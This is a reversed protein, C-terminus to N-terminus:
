GPGEGDPRTTIDLIRSWQARERWEGSEVRGDRHAAVVRYRYPAELEVAVPFRLTRAYLDPESGLFKVEARVLRGDVARAEVEVKKYFLDPRLRNQFDYCYVRLHAYGPPAADEFDVRQFLAPWREADVRIALAGARVLKSSVVDDAREELTRALADLADPEALGLRERLLQMADSTDRRISVFVDGDHGRGSTSFVYSLSMLVQQEHLTRWLVQSTREDLPVTYSRESWYGAASTRTEPAGDAEFYGAPLPESRAGEGITAYVLAADFGTIPLPRLEIRASGVARQIGARMVALDAPTPGAMRFRLTLTSLSGADSADGHLAGGVWRLQLFSLGPRGDREVALELPGPAYYFVDRREHDRYVQLPGVEVANRLDPAARAFAPAVLALVLCAVGRAARARRSM